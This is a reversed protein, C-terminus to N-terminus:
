GVAAAPYPFAKPPDADKVHHGRVAADCAAYGWNILREQIVTPTKALRTKVAALALTQELPCPLTGPAKEIPEHIGWYAGDRDGRHYGEITQRVRLARVQADMVGVVRPMQLLMNHSPGPHPVFAGGADSVLITRYLKWATELGLNDYVGGDSLKVESRYSPDTLEAGRLDWGDAPLKLRLPSLPPPFAASAAVATALPVDHDPVIGIRWDGVYPQTFRFLAGTALNSANFVFRPTEPLDGLTKAGLLRRRYMGAARQAITTGPLLLGLLVAPVDITGSALKRLPKVVEQEFDDPAVPWALALQAATISGGSVSSVRKVGGLIGLESLRWLTGAHFLMARFGGGSLCVATGEEVERAEDGPIRRVPEHAHVQREPM